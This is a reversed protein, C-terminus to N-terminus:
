EPLEPDRRSPARTELAAIATLANRVATSIHRSMCARAEERDGCRLADLILRHEEIAEHRSSPSSTSDPEARYALIRQLLRYDDLMKMLKRNDCARAIEEHFEVDLRLMERRDAQSWRADAGKGDVLRQMQDCCAGMRDLAASGLNGCAEEAVFCELARRVGYIERIERADPNRVFAGVGPSQHVLGESALQNIAERLPGRSVRLAAALEVEALRDGPRLQGDRLRSRLEVYARQRLTQV